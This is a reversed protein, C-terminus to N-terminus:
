KLILQARNLALKTIKYYSGEGPGPMQSFCTYYYKDDVFAKGKPSGDIPFKFVRAKPQVNKASLISSISYTWLPLGYFSVILTNQDASISDAGPQANNIERIVQDTELDIVVLGRFPAKQTPGVLTYSDLVVFANQGSIAVGRAMSELSGQSILPITQTVRKLKLDFISVGLRGHAIVLKDQYRAFSQAHQEDGYRGDTTHTSYTGLHQRTSLDWEELGSYTLIYTRNQYTLVDIVSDNALVQSEQLTNFDIFRLVAPQPSRNVQSGTRYSGFGTFVYQQDVRLFNGCSSLREVANKLTDSTPGAVGLATALLFVFFVTMTKM